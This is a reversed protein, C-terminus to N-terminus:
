TGKAKRYATLDPAIAESLTMADDDIDERRHWALVSEALREAARLRQLEELHGAVELELAAIHVSLNAQAAEGEVLARLRRVEAILRLVQRPHLGGDLADRETVDLDDDTM